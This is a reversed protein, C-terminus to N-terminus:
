VRVGNLYAKIKEKGKATISKAADGLYHAKKGPQSYKRVKHTGDRRMGREQYLAYAIWYSVIYKFRGLKQVKGSNRLMGKDRPVYMKSLREIDVGMDSLFLDLRKEATDAFKKTNDIIRYSM